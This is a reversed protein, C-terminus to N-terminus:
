PVVYKFNPSNAKEGNDNLLGLDKMKSLHRQAKKDSYEFFDAYEKKSIESNSIIWQYGQLEEANLEEIAPNERILSYAEMSRAFSLTLFLTKLSFHPLPLGVKPLVNRIARMGFGKEEAYNMLSFVYTIIPNRRLSPATFRNLDDISIAPLPAGPSVIRIVDGEIELSCSAGELEYDRHVIANIVAERLVEIPFDPVDVRQFSTADKSLPLVKRLWSEVLDPIMVLPQDFDAPEIKGAGYDAFAKLTAGPNKSRPNKGFLLYGFGSPRYLNLDPVWVMVGIDALFSKFKPDDLTFNLKGQQIFKELAERSFESFDYNEIAKELPVSLDEIEEVQDRRQIAQDIFGKNEQIIIQQLDRDFMRVEVGHNELHRIGKGDVTPDPDEIGVYVKKVRAHTTRRCCPVKPFNREVCPELTTFLISGSLDLNTLKREILTFEAHDGERLEGRYATEVRGDPLLLVAGVKPPVKGDPRPENISKNM